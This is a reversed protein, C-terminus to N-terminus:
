VSYFNQLPFVFSHLYVLVAVSVLLVLPNAAYCFPLITSLLVLTAYWLIIWVKMEEIAFRAQKVSPQPLSTLQQRSQNQSWLSVCCFCLESSQFLICSWCVSFRLERANTDWRSHPLPGEHSGLTHTHDFPFWDLRLIEKM